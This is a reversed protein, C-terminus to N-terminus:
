SKKAQKNNKVYYRKFNCPCTPHSIENIGILRIKNISHLKMYTEKLDFRTLYKRLKSSNMFTAFRIKRGRNNKAEVVWVWKRKKITKM